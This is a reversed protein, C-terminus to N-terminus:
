LCRQRRRRVARAQRRSRPRRRAGARLSRGDGRELARSRYPRGRACLARRHRRAAHRFLADAAEREGAHRAPGSPAGVGGACACPCPRRRGARDRRRQASMFHAPGQDRLCADPRRGRARGHLGAGQEHDAGAGAAAPFVLVAHRVGQAAIVRLMEQLLRTALGQERLDARIIVACEAADADPDATSRVLGAVREGEWAVLTMERDYDIQSLRAATEHTRARLPVFFPHWLDRNDIEDAFRRLAPEDEPRIPRVAYLADDNIRVTARSVSRIPSSRWARRRRSRDGRAARVRGDVAIVGNADCLLPNIDLETVEAHDAVIQSLQMLVNVVGDIDAPPRDRYGKCCRPSARASSRRARWRRTSRRCSWRSTACSRSRPAAM